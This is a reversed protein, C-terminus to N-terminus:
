QSSYLSSAIKYKHFWIAVGAHQFEQERSAKLPCKPTCAREGALAPDSAIVVYVTNTNFFCM